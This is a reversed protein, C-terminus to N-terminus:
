KSHKEAFMARQSIENVEAAKCLCVCFFVTFMQRVCTFFSLRATSRQSRLRNKFVSFSFPLVVSRQQDSDIRKSSWVTNDLKRCSVGM